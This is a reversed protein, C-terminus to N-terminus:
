SHDRSVWNLFFVNPTPALVHLPYHTQQFLSIIASNTIASTVTLPSLSTMDTTLHAFTRSLRSQANCMYLRGALGVRSPMSRREIDTAAEVDLIQFVVFILAALYHEEDVASSLVLCISLGVCIVGLTLSPGPTGCM